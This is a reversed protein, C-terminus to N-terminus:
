PRQTRPQMRAPSWPLGDSPRAPSYTSRSYRCLERCEGAGALNDMVRDFWTFDYEGPRPEVKAWSFIGATVLSAGAEKM